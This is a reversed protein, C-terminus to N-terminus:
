FRCKWEKIKSNIRQSNRVSKTKHGITETRYSRMMLNIKPPPVVLGRNIVKVGCKKLLYILM